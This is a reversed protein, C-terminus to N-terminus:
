KLVSVVLLNSIWHRQPQIRVPCSSPRPNIKTECSRWDSCRRRCRATAWSRASLLQTRLKRSMLTAGSRRPNTPEASEKAESRTRKVQHKHAPPNTKTVLRGGPNGLSVSLLYSASGRSKCTFSEQQPCCGPLRLTSRPVLLM